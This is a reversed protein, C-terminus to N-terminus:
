LVMFSSKLATNSRLGHSKQTDSQAKQLIIYTKPEKRHWKSRIKKMKAINALKNKVGVKNINTPPVKSNLSGKLLISTTLNQQQNKKNRSQWINKQIIQYNNALSTTAKDKTPLPVSFCKRSTKFINWFCRM